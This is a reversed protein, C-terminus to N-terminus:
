VVSKRDPHLTALSLYGRLAHPNGGSNTAAEAKSLMLTNLRETLWSIFASHRKLPDILRRIKFSRKQNFSTDLTLSGDANEKYYPRAFWATEPLIDRIDNPSYFMLIVIDPKFRLVDTKLYILQETQTAESRGFNMLEIKCPLRGQLKQETLALFNKDEELQIAEVFSDGIVAIRCTGAPKELTWERDKWGDRNIRGTVPHDNEKFFWYKQGAAFRWAIVPDPKAYSIKAGFPHFVRWVTELCGAMVTFVLLLAILNKQM